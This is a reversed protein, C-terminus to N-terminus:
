LNEGGYLTVDFLQRREIMSKHSFNPLLDKLVHRGTQTQMYVTTQGGWGDHPPMMYFICEMLFQNKWDCWGNM